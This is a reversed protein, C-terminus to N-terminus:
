PEIQQCHFTGQKDQIVVALPVTAQTFAQGVPELPITCVGVCPTKPPMGACPPIVWETCGVLALVLVCGGACLIVRVYHM